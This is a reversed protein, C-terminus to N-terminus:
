YANEGVFGHLLTLGIIKLDFMISWHEIYYLDYQVRKEMKNLTDTEGRWGNVQAWGTIGPKVKHRQMYKKISNKYLENHAVAHPRPGVISMRGQLVNFFQPLEDLSTKRLFKGLKTIRSDNPKAQIVEGAPEDHEVMTRFKYVKIVKGDWGHRLQKFLVPGKSTLKLSIAILMLLPSITILIFAALVRDEVAKFLRNLGVMPSANLNLAPFGALDTIPHNFLGLGFIDLVFRISVTHHRLVHLMEKVQNEASLPLAIWLEDISETASELYQSLDHPIKTVALNCIHTPKDEPTADFIALIRFGTWLAPQLTEVLRQGLEGAGIIIVRRENWQHSRMLRLFALLSCRFLLLFVIALIAWYVYWSRSFREGTKTIFALGALLILVLAIAQLLTAIHQWFGKARMSEYIKFFSFVALTFLAGIELATVYRPPLDLNGFRYYFAILGAAVVAAMDLGRLLIALPKSYEKLLGRPLM